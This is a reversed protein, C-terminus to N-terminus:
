NRIKNTANQKLDIYNQITNFGSILLNIDVILKLDIYNQITNFGKSQENHPSNLKLDIYNQITNFCM